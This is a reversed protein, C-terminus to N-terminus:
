LGSAHFLIKDSTPTDNVPCYALWENGTQLKMKLRNAVVSGCTMDHRHDSWSGIFQGDLM